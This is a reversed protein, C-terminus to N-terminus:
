RMVLMTSSIGYIAGIPISDLVQRPLRTELQLLKSQKASLPEGMMTPLTSPPSAKTVSNRMLPTSSAFPFPKLGKSLLIMPSPSRLPKLPKVSPLNLSAPLRPITKEPQPQAMPPLTPLLSRLILIAVASLPLRRQQRLKQSRSLRSASPFHQCPIMMWSPSWPPPRRESFALVQIRYNLWLPKMGRLSPTMSSLFPSPSKPKAQHM